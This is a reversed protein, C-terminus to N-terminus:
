GSTTLMRTEGTQFQLMMSIQQLDKILDTQDINYGHM